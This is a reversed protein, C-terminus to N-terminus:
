SSKGNGDEYGISTADVKHCFAPIHSHLNSVAPPPPLFRVNHFSVLQGRDEAPWGLVVPLTATAPTSPLLVEISFEKLRPDQSSIKPLAALWVWCVNVM